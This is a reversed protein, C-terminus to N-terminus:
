APHVYKAIVVQLRQYLIVPLKFVINDIYNIHCKKIKLGGVEKYSVTSCINSYVPTLSRVLSKYDSDIILSWTICINRHQLNFSRVPLYLSDQESIGAMICCEVNILYVAIICSKGLNFNLFCIRIGNCHKHFTTAGILIWIRSPRNFVCNLM